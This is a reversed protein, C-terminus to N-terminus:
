NNHTIAVIFLKNVKYFVLNTSVPLIFNTSYLKLFELHFNVYHLFVACGQKTSLLQLQYSTHIYTHICAHTLSTKVAEMHVNGM